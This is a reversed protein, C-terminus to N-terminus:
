MSQSSALGKAAPNHSHEKRLVAARDLQPQEISAQQPEWQCLSKLPTHKLSTTAPQHYRASTQQIHSPPSHMKITLTHCHCNKRLIKM